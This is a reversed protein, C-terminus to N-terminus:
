FKKVAITLGEQTPLLISTYKLPDALRLNFARIAERATERVREVPADKWAADFLLTNDGVILGGKRVNKEAWELYHLYNLKDADIFAMDFPGDKELHPLATRADGTILQIKPHVGINKQATAARSADKEVTILLGDDPLADAMWLASYGSLTGIEIIKKIGGLHILLQLLKGEEPYIAIDAPANEHACKQEATEPAFTKRIYDLRDKFM